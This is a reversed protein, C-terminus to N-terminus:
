LPNPRVTDLRHADESQFCDLRYNLIVTRIFQWPPGHSLPCPVLFFLSCGTVALMGDTEFSQKQKVSLILTNLVINYVSYQMPIFTCKHTSLDSALLSAFLLTARCLLLPFLHITQCLFILCVNDTTQNINQVVPM